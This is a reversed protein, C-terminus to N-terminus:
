NKCKYCKYIFIISILNNLVRRGEIVTGKAPRKANAKLEAVEAVVMLTELLDDVGVGSKASLPIM